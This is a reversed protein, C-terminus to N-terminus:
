GYESVEGGRKVLLKSLVKVFAKTYRGDKDLEPDLITLEMGAVKPHALLPQLLDAFEAYSLGDVNRSDVAPMINDNLVDVDIHMWFGDLNEDNVMRIFSNICKKMGEERLRKLDYYNIKSKLIPQVYREDYERNGACWVWEEKVYPKQNRINTLKNHGNGTVIALDMGAAGKTISNHPMVFDTHGDLFFLSYKGSLKLGLTCGMLISCDGGLVLLLKKQNLYQFVKDALLTSYEKIKDANRVGSEMDYDMSYAPAEVRDIEEPFLIEYLGNARLWQPLKRVGPEKGPFPEKLGLNSPAEIIVLPKM